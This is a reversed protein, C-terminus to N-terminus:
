LVKKSYIDQRSDEWIEQASIFCVTIKCIHGLTCLFLAKGKNEEMAADLLVPNGSPLLKKKKKKGRRLRFVQMKAIKMSHKNNFLKYLLPWTIM